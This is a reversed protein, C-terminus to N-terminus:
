KKGSPLITWGDCHATYSVIFKDSGGVDFTPYNAASFSFGEFLVSFVEVGQHLKVARVPVKIGTSIMTTVLVEMARDAASGNYPRTLTMDSFDQLQDTFKYKKNTGADVVEVVGSQQGMGELTEFLGDSMIGPVPIELYWGNTVYVDQPKQPRAM